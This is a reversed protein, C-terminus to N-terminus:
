WLHSTYFATQKIHQGNWIQKRATEAMTTFFPPFWLKQNKGGIQHFLTMKMKIAAKERYMPLRWCLKGSINNIWWCGGRKIWKIRQKIMYTIKLGLSVTTNTQKSTKRNTEVVKKDSGYDHRVWSSKVYITKKETANGVKYRNRCPVGLSFPNKQLSSLRPKGYRGSVTVVGTSIKAPKATETKVTHVYTVQDSFLDLLDSNEHRTANTTEEQWEDKATWM